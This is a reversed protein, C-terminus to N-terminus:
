EPSLGAWGPGSQPEKTGDGFSSVESGQECSGFVFVWRLMLREAGPLRRRRV